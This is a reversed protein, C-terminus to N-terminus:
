CLLQWTALSIDKAFCLLWLFEIVSIVRHNDRPEALYLVQRSWTTADWRDLTAILGEWATWLGVQNGRHKAQKKEIGNALFRWLKSGRVRVSKINVFFWPTLSPHAVWVLSVFWLLLCACLDCCSSAVCSLSDVVWCSSSISDCHVLHTSDIDQHKPINYSHKTNGEM